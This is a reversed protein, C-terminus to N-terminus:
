RARMDLWYVPFTRRDAEARNSGAESTAAPSLRDSRLVEKWELPALRSQFAAARVRQQRIGARIRQKMQATQPLAAYEVRPFQAEQEFPECVPRLRCERAEIIFYAPNRPLPVVLAVIGILSAAERNGIEALGDEGVLFVEAAVIRDVAPPAARMQGVIIQPAVIGHQDRRCPLSGVHLPQDQRRAVGARSAQPLGANRICYHQDAIATKEWFRTRRVHLKQLRQFILPQLANRSLVQALGILRGADGFKRLTRYPQHRSQDPGLRV